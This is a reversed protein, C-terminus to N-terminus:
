VLPTHSDLIMSRPLHGRQSMSAIHSLRWLRSAEGLAGLESCPCTLKVQWMSASYCLRMMHGTRNVGPGKVARTFYLEFSHPMNTLDAHRGRFFM